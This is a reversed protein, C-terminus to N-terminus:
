QKILEKSLNKSVSNIFEQALEHQNSIVNYFDNLTIQFLVTKKVAQISNAHDTHDIVFIEGWVDGEELKYLTKDDEKVQAKGSAVIFITKHEDDDDFEFTNGEDLNITNMKDILEALLTGRITSFVPIEKLFMGIEINLFFGDDLGDLLKNNEISEDLIKKEEKPLRLSVKDYTDKSKHFLVWAATEKLMMDPNFLQAILGKSAHFDEMQALTHIACAKTWRNNQNYDRNLIYNLVQIPNYTQRPYYFQLINLKDKVSMDDLLPFLKPKIEQSIFLDLLELAFAIGEITGSDINEKVLRISEPDYLISLLMMIHEFNTDIEEKLAKALEKFEPAKPLESYAALNWMAKSMEHDLLINITAVESEKAKYNYYRLAFVVQEVIRANPFDIKDWLLKLANEGGIRSTILVIKLMVQDSQGSRHFATELIPLVPEGAEKLAASAAHSFVPSDLMEILISWTEKRKVKRATIVAEMKVKPDIDRLLELLVFINNDSILKRLLKAALARDERKISKSLRTLKDPSISIVENDEIHGIAQKALERIESNGKDYELDLSKVKEKVYSQIAKSPSDIMQLISFEFLTPELKEMLKLGYLVKEDSESNVEKELIRNISYERQDTVHAENKNRVLTEQLTLKYYEHMRNTAYYWVGLVPILFITIHILTFIGITNILLILAGGLLYAFTNVVGEVKTQVDFKINKDIPLFYLKFSPGDLADKISDIFLKSAAIATFFFFFNEAGATYGLLSGVLLAAVTFIGILIPNVILSVRLGYTEIIKDTIFTQFLFSFIVITGEFLSIFSGLSQETTFRSKSVNAFSYDIFTVAVMSVVVFLAMLAMYKNKFLGTYSIRHKVTKDENENSLNYYSIIVIFMLFYGVSAFLSIVLINATSMITLLFPISFLAVIAAILTGTDISGIIRKAQRLDFIRGFLGWFVLLSLYGFPAAFVFAIYYIDHLDELINFGLRIAVVILTLLLLVIAGLWKFSIRSQFFNYIFTLVLGVFGSAVIAIPLEKDPNQISNIFLTFASVEFTALFIGMFFGMILLLFVRNAESPEANLIKLIQKKM